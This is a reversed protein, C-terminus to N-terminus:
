RLDASRDLELAETWKKTFQSGKALRLLKLDNKDVVVLLRKVLSNAVLVYATATESLKWRSWRDLRPYEGLLRAMRPDDKSVNALSRCASCQSLECSTPSVSQQCTECTVLVKRLVRVGSAPCSSFFEPLAKAGTANCTELDSAIVRKGSESCTAIAEIPVIEGDDTAALHCSGQPFSPCALAPPKTSGDVFLQAWDSFAISTTADKIVFALKGEAYKCWVVTTLVVEVEASQQLGEVATEGVHRWRVCQDDTVQISRSLPVLQKLGLREVLSEEIPEGTLNIFHHCLRAKGISRDVYTVRLIPRDELTCGGLHVSGGDVTYEDFLRQSVDRVSEPQHSPVARGVTQTANLDDVLSRVIPADITILHKSDTAEIPSFTLRLTTDCGIKTRLSEPVFEVDIAEEGCTYECGAAALLWLM